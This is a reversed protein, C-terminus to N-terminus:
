LQVHFLIYLWRRSCMRVYLQRVLRSVRVTRKGGNKDGGITKTVMRAATKPKAPAKAKTDAKPGMQFLKRHYLVTDEVGYSM